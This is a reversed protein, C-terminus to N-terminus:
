TSATRIHVAETDDWVQRETKCPYSTKKLGLSFLGRYEDPSGFFFGTEANRFRAKNNTVRYSLNSSLVLLLSLRVLRTPRM